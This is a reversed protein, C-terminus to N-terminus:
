GRTIEMSQDGMGVGAPLAAANHSKRAHLGGIGAGAGAYSNNVFAANRGVGTATLDGLDVNNDEYVGMAGLDGLAGDPADNLEHKEGRYLLAFPCTVVDVPPM